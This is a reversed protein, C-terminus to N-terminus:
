RYGGSEEPLVATNLSMKQGHNRKLFGFIKTCWFAIKNKQKEQTKQKEQFKVEKVEKIKKGKQAKNAPPVNIIINAPGNQRCTQAGYVGSNDEDLPLPVLQPSQYKLGPTEQGTLQCGLESHDTLEAGCKNQDASYQDTDGRCPKVIQMFGELNFDQIAWIVKNELRVDTVHNQRAVETVMSKLRNYDSSAQISPIYIFSTKKGNENCYLYEPELVFCNINMFWDGCSLLPQLIGSWLDAYDKPVREGSLNVLKSRDGVKYNFEVQGDVTRFRFPIIFDPQEVSITYLAKKDLDERPIRVILASGTQSDHKYQIEYM